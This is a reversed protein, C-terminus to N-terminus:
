AKLSDGNIPNYFNVKSDPKKKDKKSKKSGYMRMDATKVLENIDSTDNPFVSAGVSAAVSVM